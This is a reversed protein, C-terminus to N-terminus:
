IKFLIILARAFFAAEAAFVVVLAFVAAFFVDAVAFFVDAVAFFVDAAFFVKAVFFVDAEFSAEELVALLFTDGFDLATLLLLGEADAPIFSGLAHKQLLTCPLEM